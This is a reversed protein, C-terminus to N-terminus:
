RPPLAANVHALRSPYGCLLMSCAFPNSCGQFLHACMVAFVLVGAFSLLSMWVRWSLDLVYFEGTTCSILSGLCVTRHLPMLAPSMSTYTGNFAGILVVLWPKMKPCTLLPFLANPAPSHTRALTSPLLALSPSSPSSVRSPSMSPVVLLPPMSEVRTLSASSSSTTLM